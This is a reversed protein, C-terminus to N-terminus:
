FEHSLQSIQLMKNFSDFLDEAEKGTEIYLSPHPEEKEGKLITKGSFLGISEGKENALLFCSSEKTTGPTHFVKM